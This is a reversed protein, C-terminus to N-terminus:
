MSCAVKPYAHKLDLQASALLTSPRSEVRPFPLRLLASPSAACVSVLAPTNTDHANEALIFSLQDSDNDWVSYGDAALHFDDLAVLFQAITITPAAKGLM